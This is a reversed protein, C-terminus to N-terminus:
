FTFYRQERSFPLPYFFHVMSMLPAGVSSGRQRSSDLQQTLWYSSCVAEPTSSLNCLRLAYELYTGSMSTFFYNSYLRHCIGSEDHVQERSCCIVAMFYIRSVEEVGSPLSSSVEAKMMAMTYTLPIIIGVMMAQQQTTQRRWCQQRLSVIQMQSMRSNARARAHM